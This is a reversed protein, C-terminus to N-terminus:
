NTEPIIRGACCSHGETLRHTFELRGGSLGAVAGEDLSSAMGCVEPSFYGSFFCRSIKFTGHGDAAFDIDLIGYFIRCAAFIDERTRVGLIKRFKRGMGFAGDFLRKKLAHLDSPSGLAKEGEERLFAAYKELLVLHSLGRIDPLDRRFAAATLAFLERLMMRKVFGPMFVGFLKIRLGL